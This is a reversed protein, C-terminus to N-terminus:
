KRCSVFSRERARQGGCTRYEACEYVTRCNRNNILNGVVRRGVALPLHTGCKVISGVGFDLALSCSPCSNFRPRLISWSGFHDKIGDSVSEPHFITESTRSPHHWSGCKSSPRRRSRLSPTFHATFFFGRRRGETRIRHLSLYRDRLCM